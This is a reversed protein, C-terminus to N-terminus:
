TLCHLACRVSPRDAASFPNPSIIFEQMAELPLQMGPGAMTNDKNDVGNVTINTNRGTSGNVAYVAYRNKTPDYSDVQKVGPALIALNAFDRGNLPLATIQQPTVATSSDRKEVEM